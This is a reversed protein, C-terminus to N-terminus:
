KTLDEFANDKKPICSISSITCNTIVGGESVNGYGSIVFSKEAMDEVETTLSIDACVCNEEVRFNSAEGIVDALAIGEIGEAAGLTVPVKTSPLDEFSDEKYMRRNANLKNLQAIKETM